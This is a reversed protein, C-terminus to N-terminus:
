SVVFVIEGGCVKVLVFLEMGEGFGDDFFVVFWDFM